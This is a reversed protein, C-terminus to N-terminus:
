ITCRNPTHDVCWEYSHNEIGYTIRIGLSRCMRYTTPKAIKTLYSSAPLQRAKLANHLVAYALQHDKVAQGLTAYVLRFIDSNASLVGLAAQVRRIEASFESENEDIRPIYLLQEIITKKCRQHLGHRFNGSSSRATTM